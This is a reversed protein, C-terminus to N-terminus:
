LNDIIKRLKVDNNGLTSFPQANTYFGKNNYFFKIYATDADTAVYYTDCWDTQEINTLTADSENLIDVIHSHMQNQFEFKPHFVVKDLYM